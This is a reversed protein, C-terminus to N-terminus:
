GLEREINQRARAEFHDRFVSTHFIFDAQLCQRLFKNRGARYMKGPYFRYEKRIAQTYQLYDDWHAALISLDFDLFFQLDSKFPIDAPV